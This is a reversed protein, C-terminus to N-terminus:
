PKADDKSRPKLVVTVTTNSPPQPQRHNVSHITDDEGQSDPTSLVSEGIAYTIAINGEGDALFSGDKIRSGVFVWGMRTMPKETRNDIIWAEIPDRRAAGAADTWEIDIDVLDGRKGAPGDQRPGNETGLLYLMAQVHLAKVETCLLAEHLRGHPHVLLAELAGAQLIFRAPFALEREARRIVINGVKLSGDALRETGIPPARDAGATQANQAHATTM